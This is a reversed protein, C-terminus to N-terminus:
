QINKAHLCESLPITANRCQGQVGVALVEEAIDQEARRKQDQEAAPHAEPKAEKKDQQGSGEAVGEVCPVAGGPMDAEAEGRGKEARHAHKGSEHGKLPPAASRLAIGSLEGPASADEQQGCARADEGHEARFAVFRIVGCM